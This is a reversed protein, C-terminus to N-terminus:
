SISVKRDSAAVLLAEVCTTMTKLLARYKIPLLVRHVEERQRFTSVISTGVLKETRTSSASSQLRVAPLAAKNRPCWTELKFRFYWFRVASIKKKKREDDDHPELWFCPIRVLTRRYIVEPPEACPLSSGCLFHTFLTRSAKLQSDCGNCTRGRFFVTCFIM